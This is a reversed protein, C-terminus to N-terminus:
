SNARTRLNGQSSPLLRFHPARGYMLMRWLWELPGYRFRRLWWISSLIQGIYIAFVLALGAVPGLKGFFGLGYGYFIWGLIVSQIIYNTFAMRGLPATWLLIRRPGNAGAAIVLSAYGLALLITGLPAFVQEAPGL